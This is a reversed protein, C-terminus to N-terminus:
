FYKCMFEGLYWIEKFHLEVLTPPMCIVMVLLDAVCLNVLFMNVTSRMNKNFVIVLIVIINGFVGLIFILIYFITVVVLLYTPPEPVHRQYPVSENLFNNFDTINYDSHNELMKLIHM